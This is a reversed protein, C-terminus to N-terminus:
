HQKSAGIDIEARKTFSEIFHIQQKLDAEDCKPPGFECCRHYEGELLRSAYDADYGAEEALATFTAKVKSALEPQDCAAAEQSAMEVPFILAILDSHVTEDAAQALSVTILGFAMVATPLLKMLDVGRRALSGVAGCRTYYVAERAHLRWIQGFAAVTRESSFIPWITEYM